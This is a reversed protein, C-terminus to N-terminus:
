RRGSMYAMSPRGPIWEVPGSGWGYKEGYFVFYKGKVGLEEFINKLAVKLKLVLENDPHAGAFEAIYTNDPMEFPALMKGNRSKYFNIDKIKEIIERYIMIEGHINRPPDKIDLTIIAYFNNM